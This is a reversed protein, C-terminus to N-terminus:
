KFCKEDSITTLWDVKELAWSTTYNSKRCIPLRCDMIQIGQIWSLIPLASNGNCKLKRRDKSDEGGVWPRNPWYKIKETWTKVLCWITHLGVRILTRVASPVVKPQKHVLSYALWPDYFLFYACLSRQVCYRACLKRETTNSCLVLVAIGSWRYIICHANRSASCRCCQHLSTPTYMKVVQKCEM